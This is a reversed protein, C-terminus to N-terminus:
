SMKAFAKKYNVLSEALSSTAEPHHEDSSASWTRNLMREAYAITLLIDSGKEMGLLDIFTKRKETFPHVYTDLVEDIKECLDMGKTTKALEVLNEVAPITRELLSVPNGETDNKHAELEAKVIIGEAKHWLVNGIIGAIIAVAFVFLTNPFESGAAPMKAGATIAVISGIVFLSIGIMKMNKTNKM